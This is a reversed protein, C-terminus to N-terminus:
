LCSHVARPEAPVFIAVNMELLTERVHRFLSAPFGGLWFPPKENRTPSLYRFIDESSTHGHMRRSVNRYLEACNVPSNCFIEANNEYVWLEPDDTRFSIPDHELAIELGSFRTEVRKPEIAHITFNVPPILTSTADYLDLPYYPEAEVYVQAKATQSEFRFSLRARYGFSDLADFWKELKRFHFQAM